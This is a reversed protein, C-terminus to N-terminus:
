TVGYKKSEAEYDRVAKDLLDSVVAEMQESQKIVLYYKRKITVPVGRKILIGHGNLGVFLDDKYKDADKFLTIEVEDELYFDAEEPTMEGLAKGSLYVRKEFLSMEAFPKEASPTATNETVTQKKESM